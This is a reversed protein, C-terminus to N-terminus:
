GRGAPPFRKFTDGIQDLSRGKLGEFQHLVCDDRKTTRSRSKFQTVESVWELAMITAAPALAFMMGAPPKWQFRKQM